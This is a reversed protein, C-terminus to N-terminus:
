AKDLKARIGWVADYGTAADESSGILANVNAGKGALFKSYATHGLGKPLAVVGPMIGEFLHVRVTATGFPTTLKATQGEELGM